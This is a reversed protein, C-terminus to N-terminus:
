FPDPEPEPAPEPEAPPPEPDPDANREEWEAADGEREQKEFEDGTREEQEFTDGSRAEDEFTDGSREQDEFSDGEQESDELDDGDFPEGEYADQDSEVPPSTVEPGGSKLLKDSEESDEPLASAGSSPEAQEAEQLADSCSKNGLLPWILLVGLLIPAIQKARRMM